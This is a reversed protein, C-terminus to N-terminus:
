RNDRFLPHLNLYKENVCACTGEELNNIKVIERMRTPTSLCLPLAYLLYLFLSFIIVRKRNFPERNPEASGRNHAIIFFFIYTRIYLQRCLLLTPARFRPYKPTKRNRRTSRAPTVPSPQIACFRAGFSSYAM